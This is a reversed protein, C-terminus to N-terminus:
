FVGFESKAPAGSWVGSPSSLKCREASATATNLPGGRLPSLLRSLSSFPRTLFPLNSPLPSTSPPIQDVWFNERSAAISRPFLPIYARGYQSKHVAGMVKEKFMKGTAFEGKFAALVTRATFLLINAPPVWLDLVWLV